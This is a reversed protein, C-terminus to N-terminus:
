GAGVMGTAGLVMVKTGGSGSGLSNSVTRSQELLKDPPEGGNVM